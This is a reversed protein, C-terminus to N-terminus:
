VNNLGFCAPSQKKICQGEMVTINAQQAPSDPSGLFSFQANTRDQFYPTQSETEQVRYSRYGQQADQM